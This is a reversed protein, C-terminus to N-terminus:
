QAQVNAGAITNWDPDTPDSPPTSTTTSYMWVVDTGGVGGTPNTINQILPVDGDICVLQSTGITGPDTFNNCLPVPATVCCVVAEVDSHGFTTILTSTQNAIDISFLSNPTVCDENGTTGFLDCDNNFTLGEIDCNALTAVPTVVGTSTNITVIQDFDTAGSVTSVGYLVNTCPNFAIDDVDQLAGVLEVFDIGVGFIDEVVQGTEPNIQFLLDHSANKREISDM